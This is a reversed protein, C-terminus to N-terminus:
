PLEALACHWRIVAWRDLCGFLLESHGPGALSWAASCAILAAGESRWESLGVYGFMFMLPGFFLMLLVLLMAGASPRRITAEMLSVTLCWVGFSQHRPKLSWTEASTM